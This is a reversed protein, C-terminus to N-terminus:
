RIRKRRQADRELFANLLREDARFTTQKLKSLATPLDLLNLKAAEELVGLTGIV